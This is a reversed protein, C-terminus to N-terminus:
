LVMIVHKKDQIDSGQENWVMVVFCCLQLVHHQEDHLQVIGAGLLIPLDMGLLQEFLVYDLIM